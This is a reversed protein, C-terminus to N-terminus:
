EEVGWSDLCSGGVAGGPSIGGGGICTAGGDRVRVVSCFFWSVGFVINGVWSVAVDASVARLWPSCRPGYGVM